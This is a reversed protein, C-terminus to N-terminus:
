KPSLPMWTRGAAEDIASLARRVTDESVVTSLGLLQPSIADARLAAIHAYRRHGALMSLFWTGIIDAYTLSASRRVAVSM